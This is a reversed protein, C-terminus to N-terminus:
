ASKGVFEVKAWGLKKLAKRVRAERTRLSIGNVDNAEVAEKVAKVDVYGKSGDGHEVTELRTTVYVSNPKKVIIDSPNGCSELQYKPIGLAVADFGLCCMFGKENLLMTDGYKEVLTPTDGGRRWKARNIVLVRKKAM